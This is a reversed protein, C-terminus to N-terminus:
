GHNAHQKAADDAAHSQPEPQDGDPDKSVQTAIRIPGDSGAQHLHVDMQPLPIEIGEEDLTLKIKEMTEWFFPWYDESKVWPRVILNVSSDALENVSVRPAPDELVREDEKLIRMLVTKAKRLDANYSIGVVMDVRRTPHQSFNTIPSSTIQSNPVVVKRNDPTNLITTFLEIGMVTGGIGGADVYDGYKFPRYVMLLVGSAFNALSGQLSLGIALGAAGLIAIFSTTPIGVHSLAMLIVAAIVIARLIGGLFGAVANDMRSKQMQKVALRSFVGALIFGGILILLGVVFRVAYAVLLGQNEDIWLWMENM